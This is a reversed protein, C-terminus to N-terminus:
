ISYVCVHVNWSINWVRVSNPYRTKVIFTSFNGWRGNLVELMCVADVLCQPFLDRYVSPCKDTEVEYACRIVWSVIEGCETYESKGLALM